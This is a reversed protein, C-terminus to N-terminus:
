AMIINAYPINWTEGNERKCKVKSPNLKLVEWIESKFKKGDVMVIDGVKLDSLSKEKREERSERDKSRVLREAFAIIEKLEETDLAKLEAILNM